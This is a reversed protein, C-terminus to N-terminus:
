APMLMKALKIELETFFSSESHCCKLIHLVPFFGETGRERKQHSVGLEQNKGGFEMVQLVVSKPKLLRM